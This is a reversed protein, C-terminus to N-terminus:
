SLFGQCVCEIFVGDNNSLIVISVATYHYSSLMEIVSSTMSNPLYIVLQMYKLM